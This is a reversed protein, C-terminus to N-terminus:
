LVISVNSYKVALYSSYSDNEAVLEFYVLTRGKQSHKLQYSNHKLHLDQLQGYLINLQTHDFNSSVNTFLFVFLFLQQM